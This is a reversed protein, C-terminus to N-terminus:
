DNSDRVTVAWNGAGGLVDGAFRKYVRTYLIGKGKESSRFAKAVEMFLLSKQGDSM